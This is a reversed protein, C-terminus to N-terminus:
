GFPLWPRGVAARFPWPIALLILLLALGYLIAARKYKAVPLEAKRVMVRGIHALVLAVLMMSAHEVSWFRLGSDRMAAGMDGLATSVTPSLFYLGLGILVQVDMSITFLKGFRDSSESWERRGFWGAFANGVAVVAFILVLWRVLSHLALLMDYM